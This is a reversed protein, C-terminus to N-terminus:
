KISCVLVLYFVNRTAHFLRFISYKCAFSANKCLYVRTNSERMGQELFPRFRENVLAEPRKRVSLSLKGKRDADM